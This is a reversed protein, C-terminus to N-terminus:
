WMVDNDLGSSSYNGVMGHQSLNRMFDGLLTMLPDSNNVFNGGGDRSDLYDQQSYQYDQAADMNIFSRKYAM